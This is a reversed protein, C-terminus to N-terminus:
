KLEYDSASMEMAPPLQDIIELVEGPDYWMGATFPRDDRSESDHYALM